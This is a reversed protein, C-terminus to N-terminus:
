SQVNQECVFENQGFIQMCRTACGEGFKSCKMSLSKNVVKAFIQIWDLCFVNIILIESILKAFIKISIM